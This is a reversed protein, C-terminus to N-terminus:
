LKGTCPNPMQTGTGSAGASSQIYRNSARKWTNISGNAQAYDGTLYHGSLGATGFYGLPERASTFNTLSTSSDTAGMIFAHYADSTVYSDLEGFGFNTAGGNTGIFSSADLGHAFLYFTKDTAVCFWGRANSNASTSKRFYLGGSVQAGTPFADTGTDVDSMSRYGVLRALQADTDDIRLYSQLGSGARYASKNTGTYARTWGAGSKSGYGTVLVAYLLADLAGVTGSLTPASADNSTYVTPTAM